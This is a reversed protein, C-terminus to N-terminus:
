PTVPVTWSVPHTAVVKGKCNLVYVPPRAKLYSITAETYRREGPNGKVTASGWLEAVVPYYHFHGEACDPVCDNEWETGYASALEPTWSTWHLDKLGLGDDACALVITGPKVQAKDNDMCNLVVYHPATAASDDRTVARASSPAASASGVLWASLGVAAIACMSAATIFRGRNMIKGTRKRHM